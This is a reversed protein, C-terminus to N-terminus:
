ERKKRLGSSLLGFLAKRESIDFGLTIIILITAIASLCILLCLHWIGAEVDYFLFKIAWSLALSFATIFILRLLVTTCFKLVPFEAIRRLIVLRAFVAVSSISIAVYM